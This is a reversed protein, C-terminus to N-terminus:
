KPIFIKNTDHWASSLGCKMDDINDSYLQVNLPFIGQKNLVIGINVDEFKITEPNMTNIIIEISKKSLYYMPGGCYSVPPIYTTIKNPPKIYKDLAWDSMEGTPKNVVLGAYNISNNQLKQLLENFYKSNIIIDDDIKVIYEPNFLEQIACIAYFVKHPLEDYNDECRVDLINTETIYTYKKSSDLLKNGVVIVYPININNLWKTKIFELRHSNQICSIILLM